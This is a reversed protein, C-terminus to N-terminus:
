FQVACATIIPSGKVFVEIHNNFSVGFGFSIGLFSVPSPLPIYISFSWSAGIDYSERWVLAIDKVYNFIEVSKENGFMGYVFGGKIRVNKGDLLFANINIRM